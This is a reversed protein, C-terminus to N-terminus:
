KKVFTDIKLGAVEYYHMVLRLMMCYHDYLIYKHTQIYGIEEKASLVIEFM